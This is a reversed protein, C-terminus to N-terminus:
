MTFLPALRTKVTLEDPSMGEHLYLPVSNFSVPLADHMAEPSPADVTVAEVL